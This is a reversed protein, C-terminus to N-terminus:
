ESKPRKPPPEEEQKQLRYNHTVVSMLLLAWRCVETLRRVTVTDGDYLEDVKYWRVGRSEFEDTPKLEDRRARGADTLRYLLVAMERSRELCSFELDTPQVRKILQVDGPYLGAEEKMERECAGEISEGPERTGKILSPKYNGSQRFSIYYYGGNEKSPVLRFQVRGNEDEYLTCKPDM